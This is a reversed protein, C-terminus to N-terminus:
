DEVLVRLEVTGGGEYVPNGELLRLVDAEDVARVKLYGVLQASVAPLPGAKRVCRGGGISSGGLFQGSTRLKELYPGWASSAAPADDHMFLLYESM